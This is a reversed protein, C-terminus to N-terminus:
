SAPAARHRPLKRTEAFSANAARRRAEPQLHGEDQSPSSAETLAGRGLSVRTTPHSVHFLRGGALHQQVVGNGQRRHDFGALISLGVRHTDVWSFTEHTPPRAPAAGAAAM